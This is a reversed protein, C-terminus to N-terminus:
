KIKIKLFQDVDLGDAKLAEHLQPDSKIKQQFVRIQDPDRLSQKKSSMEAFWNPVQVETPVSASRGRVQSPFRLVAMGNPDAVAGYPGQASAPKTASPLSRSTPIQPRVAPFPSARTGFGIAPKEDPLDSMDMFNAADIRSLREAKRITEKSVRGTQVYELFMKDEANASWSVNVKDMDRVAFHMVSAFAEEAHQQGFDDELRSLVEKAKAKFAKKDMAKIDVGVGFYTEAEQKTVLLPPSNPVLRKQAEIRADALEAFPAEAGDAAAALAKSYLRKMSPDDAIAGAPDKNLMVTFKDFKERAEAVAKKKPAYLPDTPLPEMAELNQLMENRTKSVLGSNVQYTFKAAEREAIFGRKEASTFLMDAKAWAEPNVDQGHDEMVKIASKLEATIAKKQGGESQKLQNQLMTIAKRRQDLSLHRYPSDADETILKDGVGQNLDGLTKQTDAVTSKDTIEPHKATLKAIEGDSLVDGLAKTPSGTSAALLSERSSESLDMIASPTRSKVLAEQDNHLQKAYATANEPTDFKGLHQGTKKFQEIAENESLTRGDDSITPLLVEKGDINASISKVTSVTGDKNQVTPRTTLDINGAEVLGKAPETKATNGSVAPLDSRSVGTDTVSGADAVHEPLNSKDAGSFRRVKDDWLDMFDQSTVNDVSGFKAKAAEPINGWIARKAWAAGKQQGEGTSAMNQWAPREPNAMHAAAGGAGQQHILYIDSPTPERGYKSAFEAAEAKIKTLGARLNDEANHIDGGGHKEFESKSLQLLGRYSGTVAKPDGGSEIRVYARVTDLPLGAEKAAAEIATDVAANGFAKTRSPGNNSPGAGTGGIPAQRAKRLLERLAPVSAGTKNEPDLAVARAFEGEFMKSTLIKQVSKEGTLRRAADAPSLGSRVLDEAVRINRELVEPKGEVESALGSIKEEINEGRYRYSEDTQIRMAQDGLSIRRNLAYDDLRQKQSAPANKVYAHAAEDYRKHVAEMFGAGGPQMRQKEEEIINATKRHFVVSAMKAHFEDEKDQESKITAGITNAANSFGQAAQALGRAPASFDDAYRTYNIAEAGSSPTTRSLQDVNPIRAL